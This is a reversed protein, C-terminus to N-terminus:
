DKGPCLYLGDPDILLEGSKAKVIMPEIGGVRSEGGNIGSPMPLRELVSKREDIGLPFDSRLTSISIGADTDIGCNKDM